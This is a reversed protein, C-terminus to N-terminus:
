KQFFLAVFRKRFLVELEPEPAFHLLSMQFFRSAEPLCNLALYLVRHRELSSCSLIVADQTKRDDLFEQRTLGEVYGRAQRSADLRHALYDLYRLQRQKANM